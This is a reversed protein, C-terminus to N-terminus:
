FEDSGENRSEEQLNEPYKKEFTMCKDIFKKLKALYHKGGVYWTDNHSGDKVV